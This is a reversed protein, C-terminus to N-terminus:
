EMIKQSKDGRLAAQQSFPESADVAAADIKSWSAVNAVRLTTANRAIRHSGNEMRFRVDPLLVSVDALHWYAVESAGVHLPTPGLKPALL